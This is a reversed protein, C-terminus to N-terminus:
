EGRNAPLDFMGVMQIAHTTGGGANAYTYRGTAVGCFRARSRAVLEGTDGSALYHVVEGNSMMLLGIFIGLDDKAIQIIRGNVCLRKGRERDSDKHILAPKTENANKAVAVDDFRLREAGWMALALAGLSVEDTTDAMMPKALQLAADFSATEALRDALSPTRTEAPAAREVTVGSSSTSAGEDKSCQLGLAAAV